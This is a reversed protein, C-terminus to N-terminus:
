ERRGALNNIENLLRAAEKRDNVAYARTLEDILRGAREDDVRYCGGPFWESRGGLLVPIADLYSQERAAYRTRLLSMFRDYDVLDVSDVLGRAVVERVENQAVSSFHDASSVILSKRARDRFMVGLMERVVSVPEVAELKMRRKVQVPVLEDRVILLLDVGGDHSKGCHIVECHFHDKLVDAVLREMARDSIHVVQESCSSLHQGLAHLPASHSALDFEKLISQQYINRSHNPSIANYQEERVEWWHCKECQSVHFIHPSYGHEEWYETHAARRKRENWPGDLQVVRGRCLPCDSLGFGPHAGWGIDGGKQTRRADFFETLRM